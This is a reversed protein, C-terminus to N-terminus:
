SDRPSPSTYLLCIYVQSKKLSKKLEQRYLHLTDKWKDNLLKAQKALDEPLQSQLKTMLKGIKTIRLDGVSVDMSSLQHFLNLITQRLEKHNTTQSPSLLLKASKELNKKLEMLVPICEVNPQSCPIEDDM